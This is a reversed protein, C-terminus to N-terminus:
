INHQNGSQERHALKSHLTKNAEQERPTLDPTIFMRKLQDLTPTTRIKITNQPIAAKKKM